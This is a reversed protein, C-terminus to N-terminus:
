AVKEMINKVIDIMTVGGYVHNTRLREYEAIYAKIFPKARNYGKESVMIYNGNQGGKPADNFYGYDIGLLNLLEIDNNHTDRSSRGKNTWIFTRRKNKPYHILHYLMEKYVKKLEGKKTTCKEVILKAFNEAKM